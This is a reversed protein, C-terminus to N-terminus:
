KKYWGWYLMPSTLSILILGIVAINATHALLTLPVQEGDAHGMSLIPIGIICFLLLAIFWLLYVGMPNSSLRVIINRRPTDQMIM